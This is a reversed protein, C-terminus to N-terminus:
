KEDELDGDEAIKIYSWTITRGDATWSTAGGLWTRPKGNHVGAFYGRHWNWNDDSVLVRTDIPMDSMRDLARAYKWALYWGSLPSKCIYRDDIMGKYVRVCWNHGDNSVEIEEGYEFEPIYEAMKRCSTKTSSMITRVLVAVDEM